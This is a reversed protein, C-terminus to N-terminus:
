TKMQKLKAIAGLVNKGTSSRTGTQYAANGAADGTAAPAAQPPASPAPAPAAAAAPATATVPAPARVGGSKVAAQIQAVTTAVGSVERQIERLSSELGGLHGDRMQTLGDSLRGTAKDLREQLQTTAKQLNEGRLLLQVDERSKQTADELRLLSKRLENDEVRQGIAAVAVELRGVQQQLPELSPTAGAKKQITELAAHLKQLSAQIAAADKSPATQAELQAELQKEMRGLTQKAADNGAEVAARIHTMAGTLETGQGSIEMLPKGYMKIAKTLNNIKEDQRQLAILVHQLEEGAAPPRENSAHQSEVLFQMGERLSTVDDTSGGLDDVRSQLAALHRRNSGAAIFVAGALLLSTSTLGYRSLSELAAPAIPAVGVVVAGALLAAGFLLGGMGGSGSNTTRESRVKRPRGLEATTAGRGSPEEPDAADPAAAAGSESTDVAADLTETDSPNGAEANADATGDAHLFTPLDDTTNKSEPPNKM